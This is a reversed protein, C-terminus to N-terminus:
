AGSVWMMEESALNPHKEAIVSLLTQYAELSAAAKLFKDLKQLKGLSVMGTAAPRADGEQQQRQQKAKDTSSSSSSINNNNVEGVAAAAELGSSDARATKSSSSSGDSDSSSSNFLADMYLLASRTANDQISDGQAVLENLQRNISAYAAAVDAGSLQGPQQQQQQQTELQVM